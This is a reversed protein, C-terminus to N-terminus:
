YTMFLLWIFVGIIGIGLAIGTIQRIVYKTKSSIFIRSLGLM